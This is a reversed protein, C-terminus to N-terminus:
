LVMVWRKPIGAAQKSQTPLSRARSQEVRRDSGPSTPCCSGFCGIHGHFPAPMLPIEPTPSCHPRCQPSASTRSTLRGRRFTLSLAPAAGPVAVFPLCTWCARSVFYDGKAYLHRSGTSRPKCLERTCAAFAPHCEEVSTVTDVCRSRGAHEMGTFTQTM